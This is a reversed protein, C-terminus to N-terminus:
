GHRVMTILRCLLTEMVIGRVISDGSGYSEWIRWSERGLKDIHVEEIALHLAGSGDAEPQIVRDYDSGNDSLVARIHNDGDDWELVVAPLKGGALDILRARDAEHSDFEPGVSLKSVDGM